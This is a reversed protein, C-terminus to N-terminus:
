IKKKSKRKTKRKSKRKSKRKYKRSKRSKKYKRNKRPKRNTPRGGGAEDNGYLIDALADAQVATTKLDSDNIQEIEELLEKDTVDRGLSELVTRVVNDATSIKGGLENFVYNLSEPYQISPTVPKPSAPEAVVLVPKEWQSVRTLNNRYYTKGSDPDVSSTFGEPVASQPVVEHLYRKLVPSLSAVAIDTDNQTPLANTTFLRIFNSMHKEWLNTVEDKLHKLAIEDNPKKRWKHSSKYLYIENVVLLNYLESWLKIKIAKKRHEKLNEKDALHIPFVLDRYSYNVLQRLFECCSATYPTKKFRDCINGGVVTRYTSLTHKEIFHPNAKTEPPEGQPGFSDVGMWLKCFLNISSKQLTFKEGAQKLIVSVANWPGTLLEKVINKKVYIMVDAFDRITEESNRGAKKLEDVCHQLYHTPDEKCLDPNNQCATLYTVMSKNCEASFKGTYHLDVAGIVGLAPAAEAISSGISKIVKSTM